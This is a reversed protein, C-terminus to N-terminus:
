RPHVVVSVQRSITRTWPLGKARPVVFRFRYRATQQTRTFHYRWTIRGNTGTEISDVSRWAGDVWSQVLVTRGDGADGAHQLRGRLTLRQGNRLRKPPASITAKLPRVFETVAPAATFEPGVLARVDASAAPAPVRFRGAGDTIATAGLPRWDDDDGDLPRQEFRLRIAGRPVGAATTVTGTVADRTPLGVRRPATVRLEAPAAARAARADVRGARLLPLRARFDPPISSRSRM